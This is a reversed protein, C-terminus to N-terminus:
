FPASDEFDQRCGDHLYLRRRELPFFGPRRCHACLAMALIPAPPTKSRQKAKTAEAM